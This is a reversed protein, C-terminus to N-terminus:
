VPKPVCARVEKVRKSHTNQGGKECRMAYQDKPNDKDKNQTKHTANHERETQRPNAVGRAKASGWDRSSGRMDNISIASSNIQKMTSSETSAQHRSVM